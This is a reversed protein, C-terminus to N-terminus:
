PTGGQSDRAVRVFSPLAFFGPDLSTEAVIQGVLEEGYRNLTLLLIHPRHRRADTTPMTGHMWGELRAGHIELRNVLTTSASGLKAHVDGDPQFHLYFPITDEYTVVSGVWKGAFQALAEAASPAQAAPAPSPAAEVRPRPLLAAAIEESVKLMQPHRNQNAIVVIAINEDPYLIFQSHVGPMNGGHRVVRHGRDTGLIWGLGYDDGPASAVRQMAKASEPSLIRQQGPLLTGLHFMGFRLMDHASGWIDSAGPTDTMYMPIPKQGLDYRAAAEAGWVPDVGVASRTMGLPLFIEKRLFEGYSQGSANSVAVDLARYG